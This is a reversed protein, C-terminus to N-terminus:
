ADDTEVEFTGFQGDREPRWEGIGGWGANELLAAINDASFVDNRFIIELDMHWDNYQPRYRLDATRNNFPGVRVADERMVPKQSKIEVFDGVIRVGRRITNKPIGLQYGAEVMAKKIGNTPFCDKGGRVYRAGQFDAEPDKKERNGKALKKEEKTMQQSQLMERLAKASWAHTVLIDGKIRITIRTRAIRKLNVLIAEKAKAMNDRTIEKPEGEASKDPMESSSDVETSLVEAVVKPDKKKVKKTMEAM